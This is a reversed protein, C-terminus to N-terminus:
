FAGVGSFKLERFFSEVTFHSASVFCLLFFLLSQIPSFCLSTVSAPLTGLDHRSLVPRQRSTPLLPTISTTPALMFARSNASTPTSATISAATCRIRHRWLAASGRHHTSATATPTAPADGRPRSTHSALAAVSSTEKRKQAQLEKGKRGNVRRASGPRWM